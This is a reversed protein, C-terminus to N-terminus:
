ARRDPGRGGVFCGVLKDDAMIPAAFDILGAHCTYIKAKGENLALEGGSKDCQACRICGMPSNRTYKMCFDSFGSGNTVAIGNADTTISAIGTMGSFADQINQLTKRDILDTLYLEYNIGM